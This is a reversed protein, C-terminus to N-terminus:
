TGGQRVTGGTFRLGGSWIIHVRNYCRSPLPIAAPHCHSPKAGEAGRTLGPIRGPCLTPSPIPSPSPPSRQRTFSYCDAHKGGYEELWAAGAMSRWGHELWAAGAMSRWGHGELWAGGAMSRWGHRRPRAVGAVIREYSLQGRECSLWLPPVCNEYRPFTSHMCAHLGDGGGGVVQLLAAAQQKIPSVRQSEEKLEKYFPKPLVQVRHLSSDVM